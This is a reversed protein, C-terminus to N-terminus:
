ANKPPQSLRAALMKEAKAIREPTAPTPYWRTEYVSRDFFMWQGSRKEAIVWFFESPREETWGVCVPSQKDQMKREWALSYPGISRGADKNRSGLM